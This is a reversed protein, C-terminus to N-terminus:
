NVRKKCLAVFEVTVGVGIFAREGLMANVAVMVKNFADKNKEVLRYYVTHNKEAM